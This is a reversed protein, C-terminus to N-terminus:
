TASGPVATARLEWMEIFGVDAFGLREYVPAGARSAQLTGTELGRGRADDLLRVLIASALGKGRYETLTAVATVCADGGGSLVMACSVPEDDILAMCSHVPLDPTREIAAGWGAADIGYALDNIRAVEQLDGEVLETGAPLAREPERLDSLALGMSRPAGDLVHGRAALMAASERDDDPVWVTWARVGAQAYGAALSDIEESLAASDAAYVSNFLSRDPTRPSLSAIVRQPRLVQSAESCSGFLELELELGALVRRRLEDRM